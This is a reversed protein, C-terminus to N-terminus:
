LGQISIAINCNLAYAGPEIGEVQQLSFLGGMERPGYSHLQACGGKSWLGVTVSSLLVTVPHHSCVVLIIKVAM